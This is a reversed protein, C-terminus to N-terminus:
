ERNKWNWFAKILLYNASICIVWFAFLGFSYEIRPFLMLWIAINSLGFSIGSLDMDTVAGVIYIAAAIAAILDRYPSEFAFAGVMLWYIYRLDM